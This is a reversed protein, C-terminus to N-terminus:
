ALSISLKEGIRICTSYRARPREASSSFSSFSVMIGPAKAQNLLDREILGTM